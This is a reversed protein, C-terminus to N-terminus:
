KMLRIRMTEDPIYSNLINIIKEATTDTTNDMKFSYKRNKTEIELYDIAGDIYHKYVNIKDKKLSLLISNISDISSTRFFGAYLTDMAPKVKKDFIWAEEHTFFFSNNRVRFAPQLEDMNPGLGVRNFTLQFSDTIVKVNEIGVAKRNEKTIVFSLLFTFLYLQFYRM